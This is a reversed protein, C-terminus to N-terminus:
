FSEDSNWNGLASDFNSPIPGTFYQREANFNCEVVNEIVGRNRNKAVFILFEEKKRTNDMRWPWVLFLIIDADQELQGSDKLDAMTPLFKKRGEIQRNLHCLAIILIKKDHAFKRLAESANSVQEYKDKGKSKLCQVYDIIAVKIDHEQMAETIQQIAMEVSLCNEVIHCCSRSAAYREVEDRLTSPDDSWFEQSYESIFQLARKGLTVAPMEESVFLCPMQITSWYHILQLAIMSKGHSPRSAILVLEGAEVGGGLATDLRPIRLSITRGGGSEILNIYDNAAQVM